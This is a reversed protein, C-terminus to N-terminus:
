LGAILGSLEIDAAMEILWRDSGAAGLLSIGIPAGNHSALPLTLQPLGALSAPATM